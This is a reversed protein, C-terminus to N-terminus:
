LKVQQKMHYSVQNRVRSFKHHKLIFLESHKSRLFLFHYSSLSSQM